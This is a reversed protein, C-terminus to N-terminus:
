LAYVFSSSLLNISRFTIQVTGNSMERYSDFLDRNDVRIIWLLPFTCCKIGMLCQQSYMDPPKDCLISLAFFFFFVKLPHEPLCQCYQLNLLLYM